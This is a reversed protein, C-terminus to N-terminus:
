HKVKKGGSREKIQSVLYSLEEFDRWTMRDIDAIMLLTLEDRDVLPNEHRDVPPNWPNRDKM